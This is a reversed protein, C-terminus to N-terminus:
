GGNKTYNHTYIWHINDGKQVPEIGASRSLSQGNKEALWGSNAGHDFEYTGAIGKIYLTAGSGSKEYAIGRAQLVRKTVDFVTDNKQIEVKTSSLITKSNYGTISVTATSVPQQKQVAPEEKSTAKTSAKATATSTKNESKTQSSAASKKRETSASSAEKKVSSEEPSKEVKEQSQTTRSTSKEQTAKEQSSKEEVKENKAADKQKTNESVKQGEHDESQTEQKVQDQTLPQVKDKACGGVLFTFLLIFM